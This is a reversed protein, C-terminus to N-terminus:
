DADPWSHLYGSRRRIYRCRSYHSRRLFREGNYVTRRLDEQGGTRCPADFATYRQDLRKRERDGSCKEARRTRALPGILEAYGVRDTNVGTLAGILTTKGHDIHGATGLTLPGPDSM